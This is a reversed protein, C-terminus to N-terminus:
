KSLRPTVLHTTAPNILLHYQQRCPRYQQIQEHKLRNTYKKDPRVKDTYGRVCVTSQINNQTVATDIAGPTLARDPLANPQAVSLAHMAM